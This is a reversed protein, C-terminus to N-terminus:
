RCAARHASAIGGEDGGGAPQAARWLHRGRGWADLVARHSRDADLIGQLRYLPTHDAFKSVLVHVLLGATPIGKDIIQAPVPAQILERRNSLGVQRARPTSRSCGRRITSGSARMRALASSNVAADARRNDASSPGRPATSVGSAGHLLANKPVEPRKERLAELELEIAELDEDISEELLSRQAPYLQESRRGFRWRKSLAM